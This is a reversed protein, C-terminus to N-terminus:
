KKSFTPAVKEFSRLAGMGLMGYTLQTLADDLRPLHTPLTHGSVIFGWEIMPRLIFEFSFAAACVWGIAPRWGSVFVSSSAAEVKDVDSQATTVSQLQSFEEQLAGQLTMANLQATAAAAASKDPVVKNIIAVIPDLLGKIDFV